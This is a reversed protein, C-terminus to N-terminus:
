SSAMSCRRRRVRQHRRTDLTVAATQDRGCPRASRLRVHPPRRMGAITRKPEELLAFAYALPPAAPSRADRHRMNALRHVRPTPTRRAGALSGSRIRRREPHRSSVLAHAPTHGSRRPKLRSRRWRSGAPRRCRPRADPSGALLLVTSPRPPCRRPPFVGRHRCTARMPSRYTWMPWRVDQSGVPRRRPPQFPDGTRTRRTVGGDRCSGMRRVPLCCTLGKPRGRGWVPRGIGPRTRREPSGRRRRRHLPVLRSRRLHATEPM